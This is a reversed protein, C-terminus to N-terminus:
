TKKLSKIEGQMRKFEEERKDTPKAELNVLVKGKGKIEDKLLACENKLRM